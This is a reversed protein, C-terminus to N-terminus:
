GTFSAQNSDHLCTQEGLCLNATDRPLTFTVWSRDDSNRFGAGITGEGQERGELVQLVIEKSYVKKLLSHGCVSDISKVNKMGKLCELIWQCYYLRSLADFVEM